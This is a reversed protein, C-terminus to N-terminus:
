TSNLPTRLNKAWTPNMQDLRVTWLHKNKDVRYLGHERLLSDIKRFRVNPKQYFRRAMEAKSMPELWEGEQDEAKAKETVDDVSLKFTVRSGGSALEIADLVLVTAWVVDPCGKDAWYGLSDQQKKLWAAANQVAVEWGTPKALSLAHTAMATSEIDHKTSNDWATWAGCGDQSSRLFRAARDLLERSILKSNIRQAGFVIASAVAVSEKQERGDRTDLYVRWPSNPDLKGVTLSWLYTESAEGLLRIAFDSRCLSFFHYAALIDGIGGHAIGEKLEKALREWWMDFGGVGAWEVARLMTADITVEQELSTPWFNGLVVSPWRLIDQAQQKPIRRRVLKGKGDDITTRKERAFWDVAKGAAERWRAVM